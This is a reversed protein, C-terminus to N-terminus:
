PWSSNYSAVYPIVRVAIARQYSLMSRDEGELKRSLHIVKLEDVLTQNPCILPSARFLCLRAKHSLSLRDLETSTPLQGAPDLSSSEIDPSMGTDVPLDPGDPCQRVTDDHLDNLAAHEGCPAPTGRRVTEELWQPTVVAKMKAVQWSIHRELRQRMRITTVIVDADKIDEAFVLNNSKVDEADTNGHRRLVIRSTEILKVLSAYADDDM